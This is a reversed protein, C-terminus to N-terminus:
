PGNGVKGCRVVKWWITFFHFYKWLDVPLKGLSEVTEVTKQGPHSQICLISFLLFSFDIETYSLDTSILTGTVGCGVRNGRGGKGLTNM